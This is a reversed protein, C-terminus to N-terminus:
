VCMCLCVFGLLNLDFASIRVFLCARKSKGMPQTAGALVDRQIKGDGESIDFWANVPFEYVEKNGM